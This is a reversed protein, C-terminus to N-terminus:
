STTSRTPLVEPPANLRRRPADPAVDQPFALLHTLDIGRAKWHEIAEDAGLLDVRGILEDFSRIGLSAM